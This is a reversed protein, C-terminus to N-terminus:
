NTGAVTKSTSIRRRRLRLRLRLRQRQRQRHRQRQVGRVALESCVAQARSALLQKSVAQASM